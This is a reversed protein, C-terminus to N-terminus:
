VRVAIMAAVVVVISVVATARAGAVFLGAIYQLPWLQLRLIFLAVYKFAALAYAMLVITLLCTDTMLVTM